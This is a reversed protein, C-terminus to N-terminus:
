LNEQCCRSSKLESFLDDTINETEFLVYCGRLQRFLASNANTYESKILNTLLTSRLSLPTTNM